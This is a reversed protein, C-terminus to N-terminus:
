VPPWRGAPVYMCMLSTPVHFGHNYLDYQLSNAHMYRYSRFDNPYWLHRVAYALTYRRARIIFCAAFAARPSAQHKCPKLLLKDRKGIDSHSMHPVCVM